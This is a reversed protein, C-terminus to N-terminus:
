SPRPRPTGLTAEGCRTGPADCSRATVYWNSVHRVPNETKPMTHWIRRTRLAHVGAKGHWDYRCGLVTSADWSQLAQSDRAGGARHAGRGSSLEGWCHRRHGAVPARACARARWTPEFVGLAYARLRQAAARHCARSTACPPPTPSDDSVCFSCLARPINPLLEVEMRWQNDRARLLLETAM